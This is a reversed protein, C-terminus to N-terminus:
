KKDMTTPDFVTNPLDPHYNESSQNRIEETDTEIITVSENCEDNINTADGTRTGSEAESESADDPIYHVTMATIDPNTMMANYNCIKNMTKNFMDFKTGDDINAYVTLPFINNKPHLPVTKKQKRQDWYLEICDEYLVSYTGRPKPFNDQAIQAIHQPSYLCYPSQANYYTNPIYEHHMQGQDNTFSWKVTGVSTALIQEGGIGTVKARLKQVKGVFHSMDNTICYSCGSDVMAYFSNDATELTPYSKIAMM